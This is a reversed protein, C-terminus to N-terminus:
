RKNELVRQVKWEEFTPYPPVVIGLKKLTYKTVTSGDRRGGIIDFYATRKGMFDWWHNFTATVKM